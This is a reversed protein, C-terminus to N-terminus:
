NNLIVSLRSVGTVSIDSASYAQFGAATVELSYPNGSGATGASLGSWFSQGCSDSLRTVDYTGRSLRVSAGPISIGAGDRVDILLTNTTAPSVFIRTTQSSNPALTEPQPGCSSSIVYTPEDLAVTYSDWELNSLTVRGSPGSSLSSNQYKYVLSGGATTGITKAGTMMLDVNPLLHPGAAYAVAYSDISPTASPDSSTLTAEIALSSYTSTSVNALNVPSTSFGASNGPIQSDPILSSGSGDYVRMRIDTGAPRVVDFSLSTWASLSSTSVNSTMLVGTEPYAGNEDSTLRAVGGAVTIANSSAIDNDSAFTETTTGHTVPTYVEITKSSTIDIAFTAATTQNLAVGIHAPIPNTNTATTGYTQASSYGSKSVFIQYGSGPPAGIVSALGDTDTYTTMDIIPNLSQNVIRIQASSVPALMADVINFSLTGGPVATEIGPPSIRSVLTITHVAGRVNWSVSSKAAKFDTIVGNSDAGALGDMPDDEYSVFTRRTYTVDNLVLTESQPMLGAPIGGVTGIADYSLSRIYELRENALAIAGARAKNNSVAMVTLRFAGVIGVFVTLMLATGVVADLLTSGRSWHTMRREDNTTFIRGERMMSANYSAKTYGNRTNLM